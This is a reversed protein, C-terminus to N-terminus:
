VLQLEFTSSPQINALAPHPRAAITDRHNVALGGGLNSSLASPQCDAERKRRVHLLNYGPLTPDNAIAPPNEPRIWTDTLAMLDIAHDTIVNM